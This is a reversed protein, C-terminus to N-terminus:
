LYEYYTYIEASDTPLVDKNIRAFVEKAGDIDEQEYLAAAQILLSQQLIIEEGKNILVEDNAAGAKLTENENELTAVEKELQKNQEQINSLRSKSQEDSETANQAQTKYDDVEAHIKQQIVYSGGILALIVVCFVSSYIWLFKIDKKYDTVKKAAKKLQQEVRTVPTEPVKAQEPSEPALPDIPTANQEPTKNESM